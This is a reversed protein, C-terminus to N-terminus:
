PDPLWLSTGPQKTFSRAVRLWKLVGSYDKPELEWRHAEFFAEAGRTFTSTTALIAKTAGEHHKVGYLARVLGVSVKHHPDYRKCEILIRLTAETKRLAV